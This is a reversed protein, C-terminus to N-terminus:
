GSQQNPAADSVAQEAAAIADQQKKQAEEIRDFCTTDMCVVIQNGEKGIYLPISAPFANLYGFIGSIGTNQAATTRRHVAFGNEYTYEPTYYDKQTKKSVQLFDQDELMGIYSSKGTTTCTISACTIFGVRHPQQFYPANWDSYLPSQYPNEKAPDITYQGLQDIPVDKNANDPQKCLCLCSEDLTCSTPRKIMYLDVANVGYAGSISAIYFNGDGFRGNPSKSVPSFGIIATDTELKILASTMSGSLGTDSVDKIVQAMDQYSQDWDEHSILINRGVSLAFAFVAVAIIIGIIVQILLTSQGKNM